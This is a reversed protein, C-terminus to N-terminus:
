GPPDFIVISEDANQANSSGLYCIQFAETFLSSAESVLGPIDRVLLQSNESFDISPVAHPTMSSFRVKQSSATFALPHGIKCAGHHRALPRGAPDNLLM